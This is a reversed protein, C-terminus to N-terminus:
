IMFHMDSVTAAFSVLQIFGPDSRLDEIEMYRGEELYSISLQSMVQARSEIEETAQQRVYNYSLSFFSTGLLVLTLLVMGATVFLQRWYM